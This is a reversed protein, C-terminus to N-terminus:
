NRMEHSINRHIQKRVSEYELIELRDLVFMKFTM